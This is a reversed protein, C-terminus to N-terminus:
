VHRRYDSVNRSNQIELWSEHEQTNIPHSKELAVAANEPSVTAWM